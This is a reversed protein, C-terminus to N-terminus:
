SQGGLVYLLKRLWAKRTFQYWKLESLEKRIEKLHDERSVRVLKISEFENSM